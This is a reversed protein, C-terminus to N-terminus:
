GHSRHEAAPFRRRMVIADAGDAYYRRRRQLEQFGFHEYMAAAPNDHRVELFMQWAGAARAATLAERLLAGGLGTGRWTPIVAITLLDADHGALAVDVYGCVAGAGDVAVRVWRGAAALEAWFQEPTWGSGPFMTGEWAVVEHVHWWRMPVLLVGRGDALALARTTAPAPAAIM